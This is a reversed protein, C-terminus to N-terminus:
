GQDKCCSQDHITPRVVYKNSDKWIMWPTLLMISALGKCTPKPTAQKALPWWYAISTHQDPPRCDMRFRSIVEHWIQHSFPCATLLHPMTELEQDYLLCRPHHQLGCHQLRVATWCRDQNALWMFFKVRPLAWCKWILKWAQYSTSGQFTAKLLLEGRLRRERGM